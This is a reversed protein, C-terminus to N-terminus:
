FFSFHYHNLLMVPKILCNYQEVVIPLTLTHSVLSRLQDWVGLQQPSPPPLRPLLSPLPSITKKEITYRSGSLLIQYFLINNVSWGMSLSPKLSLSLSLTSYLKLITYVVFVFSSQTFISLGQTWFFLRNVHNYLLFYVSGGGGWASPTLIPTSLIVVDM